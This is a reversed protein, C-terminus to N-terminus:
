LASGLYGFGVCIVILLTFEVTTMDIGYDSFKM